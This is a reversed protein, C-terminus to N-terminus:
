GNTFNVATEAFDLKRVTHCCALNAFGRGRLFGLIAFIQHFIM